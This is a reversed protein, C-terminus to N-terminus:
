DTAGGMSKRIEDLKSKAAKEREAFFHDLNENGPMAAALEETGIAIATRKEIKDRVFDLTPEGAKTYGTVDEYSPAQVGHEAFFDDFTLGPPLSDVIERALNMEAAHWQAAERVHDPVQDPDSSM